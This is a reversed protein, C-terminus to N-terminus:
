VVNVTINATDIFFKEGPSGAVTDGGDVTMASLYFTTGANYGFCYLESAIADEGITYERKAIEEKILDSDVTFSPDKKTATVTITLNNVIPVDWAIEHTYTFTTGDPRTFVEIHDQTVSGKMGAGATRNLAIAEAIDANSGGEVVCWIHHADLDLTADYSDTYNEYVKLDTVNELDALKAFLSGITSYAPNEVSANRRARLEADTEEDVGATAALPNNVSTVESITTVVQTITNALATVNGFNEAYFTVSTTGTTLATSAITVWNNVGDTIKYGNPLTVNASVTVDVNVYSQTAPNRTIGALKIVKNLLQGSSLDPDLVNYLSLIASQLDSSLKAEIGVKQGDPTNQSLDIDSGYIAKYAAVLETFAEDFSQVDIGSSTFDPKM